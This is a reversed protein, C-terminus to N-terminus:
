LQALANQLELSQTAPNVSRNIYVLTGHKDIIFTQRSVSLLGGAGYAKGISHDLDTLLLFPLHYREIFKKHSSIADYNIGFITAKLDRFANFNDRISCAEKTCGPTDDKPYFYLVIPARNLWESLRVQSGNSAPAVFEPAPSGLKLEEGQAKSFCFFMVGM